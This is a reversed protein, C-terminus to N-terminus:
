SSKPRHPRKFSTFFDPIFPVFSLSSYNILLVYVLDSPTNKDGCPSVSNFCYLRKAGAALFEIENMKRTLFIITGVLINLVFRITVRLWKPDRGNYVKNDSSWLLERSKKKKEVRHSHVNRTHWNRENTTCVSASMLSGIFRAAAFHLMPRSFVRRNAWHIMNQRRQQM